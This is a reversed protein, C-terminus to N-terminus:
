QVNRHHMFVRYLRQYTEIEPESLLSVSLVRKGQSVPTKVSYRIWRNQTSMTIMLILQNVAPQIVDCKQRKKRKRKSGLFPTILSLNKVKRQSATTPHVRGHEHAGLNLDMEREKERDWDIGSMSKVTDTM